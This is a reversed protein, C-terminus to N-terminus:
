FLGVATTGTVFMALPIVASISNASEMRKVPFLISAIGIYYGQLDMCQCTVGEGPLNYYESSSSTREEELFGVAGIGAGTCMM